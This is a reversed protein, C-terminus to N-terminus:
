LKVSIGGILILDNKESKPGPDSNYKDQAVLRLSVRTTMAAEVGIETNLLYRSLDGATPIYDVSEWLKATKSLALVGRESGRIAFRSDDISEVRDEIYVVGAEASLTTTDSKIFYRGVGPGVALRYDIAAIRDHIVDLTLSGYNRTGPIFRYESLFHANQVSTQDQKTGDELTVQQEGYSAEALVRFENPTGKRETTLRTNATKTESNGSTLTAGLSLSTDWTAGPPTSPEAASLNLCATILTAAVLLSSHIQRLM